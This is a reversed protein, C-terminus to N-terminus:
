FILVLLFQDIMSLVGNLIYLQALLNFFAASWHNGQISNHRNGDFLYLDNKGHFVQNIPKQYIKVFIKHDSMLLMVIVFLM